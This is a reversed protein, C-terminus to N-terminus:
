GRRLSIERCSCVIRATWESPRGHFAGLVDVLLGAHMHPAGSWWGVVRGVSFVNGNGLMYWVIEASISSRLSTKRAAQDRM